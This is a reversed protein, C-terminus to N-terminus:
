MVPMPDTGIDISNEERDFYENHRTVVYFSAMDGPALEASDTSGDIERGAFAELHTKIREMKFDEILQGQQTTRKADAKNPIPLYVRFARGNIMPDEHIVRLFLVWNLSAYQEKENQYGAAEDAYTYLQNVIDEPDGGTGKGNNKMWEKLAGNPLVAPEKVLRMNYWDEELLITETVEDFSKSLRLNSM